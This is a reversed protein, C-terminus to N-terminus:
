KATENLKWRSHGDPTIDPRGKKSKRRQLVRAAFRDDTCRTSAYRRGRVKWFQLRAATMFTSPSRQSIVCTSGNRVFRANKETQAIGDGNTGTKRPLEGRM